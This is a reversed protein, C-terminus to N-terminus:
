FDYTQSIDRGMLIFHLWKFHSLGPEKKAGQGTRLTWTLIGCIDKIDIKYKIMGFRSSYLWIKSMNLSAIISVHRFNIPCSRLLFVTKEKTISLSLTVNTMNHGTVCLLQPLRVTASHSVNLSTSAANAAAREKNKEGVNRSNSCSSNM